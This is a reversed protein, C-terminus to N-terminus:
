DEVIESMRKRFGEQGKESQDKKIVAAREAVDM